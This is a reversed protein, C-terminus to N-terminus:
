PNFSVRCCKAITPHQINITSHPGHSFTVWLKKHCYAYQYELPVKVFSDLIEFQQMQWCDTFTVEHASDSIQTWNNIVCQCYPNESLFSFVTFLCCSPVRTPAASSLLLARSSIGDLNGHEFQKTVCFLLHCLTPCLHTARSNMKTQRFNMKVHEM